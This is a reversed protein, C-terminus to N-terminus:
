GVREPSHCALRRDWAEGRPTGSSGRSSDSSFRGDGGRIHRDMQPREDCAVGSAFDLGSGIALTKGDYWERKRNFLLDSVVVFRGVSQADQIDRSPSLSRTSLWGSRELGDERRNAAVGM